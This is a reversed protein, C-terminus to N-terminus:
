PVSKSESASMLNWFVLQNEAPTQLAKLPKGGRTLQLYAGQASHKRTPACHWDGSGGGPYPQAEALQALALSAERLTQPSFLALGWRMEARTGYPCRSELPLGSGALSNSVSVFMKHRGFHEGRGMLKCTQNSASPSSCQGFPQMVPSLPVPDQHGATVEARSEKLSVQEKPQPFSKEAEHLM